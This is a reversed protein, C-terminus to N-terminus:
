PLMGAARIVIHHVGRPLYSVPTVRVDDIRATAVDAGAGVVRALAEDRLAAVARELEGAGDALVLREVSAGPQSAAAGIAAALRHEPPHRPQEAPPRRGLQAVWEPDDALAILPADSALPGPAAAAAATVTPGAVEVIQPVGTGVRIACVSQPASPRAPRRGVMLGVRTRDARMEVVTARDLGTLAAAGGCVAAWDGALAVAPLRRLYEASVMSGDSGVFTTLAGLGRGAHEMADILREARPRVAANLVASNERDRTGLGGLEHSLTLNLGPFERRLLEAVALEHDPFACSGVACVVVDRVGAGDVFRRVADPDLAALERGSLDHGGPLTASAAHVASRLSGPWGSLPPLITGGAQALRLVAVKALGGPEALADHVAGTAVTVVEIGDCLGALAREIASAEDAGGDARARDVRRRAVLEGGRLVVAGVSDAALGIGARVTARDGTMDLSLTISV